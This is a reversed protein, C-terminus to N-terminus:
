PGDPSHRRVGLVEAPEEAGHRAAEMGGGVAV